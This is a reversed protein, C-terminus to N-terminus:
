APSSVESDHGLKTINRTRSLVPGGVGEDPSSPHGLEVIVHPDVLGRFVESDAAIGESVPSSGPLDRFVPMGHVVVAKVSEFVEFVDSPREGIGFTDM